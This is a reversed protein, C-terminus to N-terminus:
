PATSTTSTTPHGGNNNSVVIAIGAAIAAAGLLLFLGSGALAAQHVGAPKGAPLPASTTDAMANSATLAAALVPALFARMFTESSISCRLCALAQGTGDCKSFNPDAFGARTYAPWARWKQWM